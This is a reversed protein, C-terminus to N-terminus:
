LVGCLEKCGSSGECSSTQQLRSASDVPDFWNQWSDFAPSRGTLVLTKGKKVVHNPGRAAHAPNQEVVQVVILWDFLM